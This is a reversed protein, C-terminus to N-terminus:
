FKVCKKVAGAAKFLKLNIVGIINSLTVLRELEENNM